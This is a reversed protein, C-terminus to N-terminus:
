KYLQNVCRAPSQVSERALEDPESLFPVGLLSESPLLIHVAPAASIEAYQVLDDFALPRHDLLVNALSVRSGEVSELLFYLAVYELPRDVALTLCHQEWQLLHHRHITCRTPTPSTSVRPLTPSPLTLPPETTRRTASKSTV